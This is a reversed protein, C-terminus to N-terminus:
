VAIMKQFQTSSSLVQRFCDVFFFNRTPDNLTLLYNRIWTSSWRLSACFASQFTSAHRASRLVVVKLWCFVPNPISSIFSCLSLLMVCILIIDCVHLGEIIVDCVIIFDDVPIVNCVTIVYHYCSICLHCIVYLSDYVIIDCVIAVDCVVIVDCCYCSMCCHCCMSQHYWM